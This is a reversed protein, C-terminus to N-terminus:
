AVTERNAKQWDRPSLGHQSKFATSFASLETYGLMDALTTLSGRSELLYHQAIEMRVESLLRKYSTGEANLQRQLTRKNVALYAAVREISCDGTKLSQRILHTVQGPLDDPYSQELNILHQELIQHLRKNADAVPRSLIASDFSVANCDWDFHIPARLTRAYPKMDEPPPRMLYCANPSWDAGCLVRMIRLGLALVLDYQQRCKRPGVQKVTFEWTAIDNSVELDITAGQNHQDMHKCLELIAAGINPAERMVFGVLGLIDLSQYRAMELGFHPFSLREASLELLQLWASYSIWDDPDSVYASLGVEAALAEPDGGISRVVDAYGDLASARVLYEKM